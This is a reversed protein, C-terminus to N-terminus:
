VICFEKSRTSSYYYGKVLLVHRVTLGSLVRNLDSFHSVHHGSLSRQLKGTM